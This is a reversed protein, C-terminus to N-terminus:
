LFRPTNITFSLFLKKCPVHLNAEKVGEIKAGNSDACLRVSRYLTDTEM